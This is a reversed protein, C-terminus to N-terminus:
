NFGHAKLVESLTVTEGNQDTSTIEPAHDGVMLGKPHDSGEMGFESYDQALSQCMFAFFSLISLYSSVSM